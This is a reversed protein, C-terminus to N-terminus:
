ASKRSGRKAMSASKSAAALSIAMVGSEGNFKMIVGNAMIEGGNEIAGNENEGNNEGCVSIGNNEGNIAAKMIKMIVGAAMLYAMAAAAMKRWASAKLAKVAM